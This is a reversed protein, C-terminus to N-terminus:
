QNEGRRGGAAGLAAVEGIVLLTPSDFGRRATAEAIGTLTSRCVRQDPLTADQIAAVPTDERWGQALFAPVIEDLKQLGMLLVLTDAQPIVTNAASYAMGSMVAFSRAVGRHTLPIGAWAPAATVSSLGPVLTWPIGGAELALIEEYGRGFVLPDGGKLRVVHRGRAAHAVLHANIDEQRMSEGAGAHGRKGASVLLCERGALNLTEEPILRDHLIVDASRIAEVAALTLLRPNGPGAGVLTVRGKAADLPAAPAAESSGTNGALREELWAEVRSPGETRLMDLLGRYPLGELLERVAEPRAAGAAGPKRLGDEAKRLGARFRGVVDALDAVEDGVAESLVRKLYRTLGPVMGGTSVTLTVDGKRIVGPVHFTGAEARDAVNCPILAAACLGAVERNVDPDDTCAFVLAKGREDGAQFARPVWAVAPVLREVSAHVSPAIITVAAQARLLETMKRAAVPGGGVVLVPRRRLDLALPYLLRSM